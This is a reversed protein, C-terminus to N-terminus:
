FRPSRFTGTIGCLPCLYTHDAGDFPHSEVTRNFNYGCGRRTDVLFFLVRQVQDWDEKDLPTHTFPFNIGKLYTEMDKQAAEARNIGKSKSLLEPWIIKFFHLRQKEPIVRLGRCTRQISRMVELQKKDHKM